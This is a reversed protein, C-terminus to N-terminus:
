VALCVTLISDIRIHMGTNARLQNNEKDVDGEDDSNDGEDLKLNSLTLLVTTLQKLKNVSIDRESVVKSLEQQLKETDDGDCISSQVYAHMCTYTHTCAQIKINIRCM